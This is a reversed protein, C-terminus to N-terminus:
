IEDDSNDASSASAGRRLGTREVWRQNWLYYDDIFVAVRATSTEAEASALVPAGLLLLALVSRRRMM